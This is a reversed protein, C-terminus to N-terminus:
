ILKNKKYDKYASYAGMLLFCGGTIFWMETGILGLSTYTAGLSSYSITNSSIKSGTKRVHTSKPFKGVTPLREEPTNENTIKDLSM